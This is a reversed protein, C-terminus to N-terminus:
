PFLLAPCVGPMIVMFQRLAGADRRRTGTKSERSAPSVGASGPVAGRNLPEFRLNPRPIKVRLSVAQGDCVHEAFAPSGASRWRDLLVEVIDFRIKVPPNKLLRLYDLATQSLLRRKRADVAAAPRTWDESSRTKVEVFVLCDDDRFIM